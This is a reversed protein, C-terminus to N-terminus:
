RCPLSVAIRRYIATLDEGRPPLYAYSSDRALAGLFAGDADTGLGVTFLSVDSARALAALSPAPKRAESPRGDTLLVVARRSGERGRSELEGLSKELGLDIRTGTGLLLQDLRRSVAEFDQTIM